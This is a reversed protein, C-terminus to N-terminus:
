RTVPLLAAFRRFCPVVSVRIQPVLSKRLIARLFWSDVSILGYIGSDRLDMIGIYGFSSKSTASSKTVIPVDTTVVLSM